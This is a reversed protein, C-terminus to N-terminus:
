VNSAEISLALGKLQNNQIVPVVTASTLDIVKGIIQDWNREDPNKIKVTVTPLDEIDIGLTEANQYLTDDVTEINVWPHSIGRDDQFIGKRIGVAVQSKSFEAEQLLEHVKTIKTM